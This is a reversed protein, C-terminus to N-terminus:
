CFLRPHLPSGLKKPSITDTTQHGLSVRRKLIDEKEAPCHCAPSCPLLRPRELIQLDRPQTDRLWIGSCDTGPEQM